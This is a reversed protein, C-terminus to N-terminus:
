SEPIAPSPLPLIGIREMLCRCAGLAAIGAICCCGVLGCWVILQSFWPLSEPPASRAPNSMLLVILAGAIAVILVGGIAARVMAQNDVAGTKLAHVGLWLSSAVAVPAGILWASILGNVVLAPM